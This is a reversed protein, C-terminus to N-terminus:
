IKSKGVELVFLHAFIEAGFGRAFARDSCGTIWRAGWQHAMYEALARVESGLGPAYVAVIEVALDHQWHTRGLVVMGRHRQRSPPGDVAQMIVAKHERELECAQDADWDPRVAQLAILDARVETPTKGRPCHLWRIPPIKRLKAM